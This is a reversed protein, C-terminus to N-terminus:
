KKMGMADKMTDKMSGMGEKMSEKMSGMGEKMSEKTSSSSGELGSKKSKSGSSPMSSSSSKKGSSSTNALHVKEPHTTPEYMSGPEHLHAEEEARDILDHCEVAAEDTYGTEHHEHHKHPQTSGKKQPAKERHSSMTNTSPHLNRRCLHTSSSNSRHLFM